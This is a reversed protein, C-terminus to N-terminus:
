EELVYYSIFYNNRWKINRYLGSYMTGINEGFVRIWHYKKNFDKIIKISIM